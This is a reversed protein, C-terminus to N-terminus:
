LCFDRRDTLSGVMGHLLQDPRKPLTQTRNAAEVVGRGDLSGDEALEGPPVFDSKCVITSLIM